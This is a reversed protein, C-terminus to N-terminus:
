HDYRRLLRADVGPEPSDNTERLYRRVLQAVLALHATLHAVVEEVNSERVAHFIHDHVVHSDQLGPWQGARATEKRLSAILEVLRPRGSASYLRMHYRDRAVVKTASTPAEVMQQHLVELEAVDESTLMPIALRVAEAELLARLDYIEDVDEADLGSVVYGRRPISEVLGESELANLADRVPIRSVGFVGAVTQQRLREGPRIVGSLIATRTVDAVWPVVQADDRAMDRAVQALRTALSSGNADEARSGSM